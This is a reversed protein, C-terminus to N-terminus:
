RNGFINGRATGHRQLCEADPSAQEIRDPTVEAIRNALIGRAPLLCKAGRLLLGEEVEVFIRNGQATKAAGHARVADWLPLQQRLYVVKSRMPTHEIHGSTGAPHDDLNSAFVRM